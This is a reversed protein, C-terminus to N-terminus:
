HQFYYNIIIDMITFIKLFNMNLNIYLELDTNNFNITTTSPRPTSHTTAYIIPYDMIIMKIKM